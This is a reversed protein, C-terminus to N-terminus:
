LSAARGEDEWETVGTRCQKRYSAKGSIEALRKANKKASAVQFRGIQKNFRASFFKAVTACSEKPHSAAYESIIKKEKITLVVRTASM